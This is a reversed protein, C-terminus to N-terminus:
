CTLLRWLCWPPQQAAGVKTMLLEVAQQTGTSQTQRRRGDNVTRTYFKSAVVRHGYMKVLEQHYSEVEADSMNPIGNCGYSSLFIDM